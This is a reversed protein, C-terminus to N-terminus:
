HLTQGAFLVSVILSKAVNIKSLWLKPHDLLLLWSSVNSRCRVLLSQVSCAPRGCHASGAPCSGQLPQGRVSYNSIMTTLM